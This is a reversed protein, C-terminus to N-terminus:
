DVKKPAIKEEIEDEIKPLIVEKSKLKKKAVLLHRSYNSQWNVLAQQPYRSAMNKLEEKLADEIEKKNIWNHLDKLNLINFNCPKRTEDKGMNTIKFSFGETHNSSM